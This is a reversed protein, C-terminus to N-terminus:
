DISHKTSNLTAATSAFAHSFSVGLSTLKSNDSWSICSQGSERLSKSKRPQGLNYVIFRHWIMTAQYFSWQLHKERHDLAVREAPFPFVLILVILHLVTLTGDFNPYKCKVIGDVHAYFM